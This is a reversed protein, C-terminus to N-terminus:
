PGIGLFENSLNVKLVGDLRAYPLCAYDTEQFSSLLDIFGLKDFRYIMRKLVDERINLKKRIQELSQREYTLFWFVKFAEFNGQFYKQQEDTFQL